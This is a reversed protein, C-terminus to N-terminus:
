IAGASRANVEALASSLAESPDVSEVSAPPVDWERGGQLPRLQVLGGVHGMVRGVRGNREDKATTGVAPKM